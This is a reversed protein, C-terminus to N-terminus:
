RRGGFFSDLLRSIQEGTAQEETMYSYCSGKHLEKFHTEIAARTRMPTEVMEIYGCGNIRSVQSLSFSLFLYIVTGDASRFFSSSCGLKQM